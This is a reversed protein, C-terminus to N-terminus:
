YNKSNQARKQYIPCLQSAANHTSSGAAFHPNTSKLCNSCSLHKKNDCNRSDHSGACHYCTPSTAKCESSVHGHEQCNYCQKIFVRQEVRSFSNGMFVYGRSLMHDYLRKTARVAITASDNDRYHRKFYIVEVKEGETLMNKLEDNKERLMELILVDNEEREEKSMKRDSEGIISPITSVDANRITLKQMKVKGVLEVDPNSKAITEKAHIMMEETEFGLLVSGDDNKKKFTTTMSKLLNNTASLESTEGSLKLHATTSPTKTVDSYSATNLMNPVPMTKSNVSKVADNIAEKIHTTSEMKKSIEASVASLIEDKFKDLRNNMAEEFRDFMTTATMACSVCRWNSLKNIEEQSIGQLGVCAAHYTSDCSATCRATPSTLRKTCIRCGPAAGGGDLLTMSGTTPPGM